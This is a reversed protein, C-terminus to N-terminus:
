AVATRPTRRAWQIAVALVSPDLTLQQWCRIIESRFKNHSAGLFTSFSM